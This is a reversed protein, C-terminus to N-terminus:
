YDAGRYMTGLDGQGLREQIEYGAIPNATKAPVSVPDATAGHPLSIGPRVLTDEANESSFNDPDTISVVIKTRGGSVVDGDHLFRERVREGNVYTGNRSGLDMLFCTPPNIELRFHHRSFHLDKELRLQANKLRGAFLTSHEQFTFDLGAHPGSNVCLTVCPSCSENQLRETPRLEEFVIEPSSRPNLKSAPRATAIPGADAVRNAILERQLGQLAALLPSREEAPFENLYDELCPKSGDRWAEEFRDCAADIRRLVDITPLPVRDPKIKM